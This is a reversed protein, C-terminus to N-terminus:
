NLHSHPTPAKGQAPTDPVPDYGGAHWPHCKCLRAGALLSGKLPGHTQVAQMAYESCSPYFRCNRGLYPSIALKYAKLLWLLLRTM